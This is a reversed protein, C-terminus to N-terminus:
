AFRRSVDSRDPVGSLRSGDDARFGVAARSHFVRGAGGADPGVAPAQRARNASDRRATM